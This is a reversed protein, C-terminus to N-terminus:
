SFPTPAFVQRITEIIRADLQGGDVLSDLIGMAEPFRMAPRYPRDETLAQYIDCCTLLRGEFPLDQAHLGKGYGSGDLKEHHMSAWQAIDGFGRVSALLEETLAVHERMTSFEEETLVDPKELITLPISLKGVDHLYGAIMIKYKHEEEIGLFDAVTGLKEALGRSHEKTFHSKADIILAFINCVRLMEEADMMAQVPPVVRHLAGDINADALDSLFSPSLLSHLAEVVHPAYVTGSLRTTHERIQRELDPRNDGMRLHLDMSDALRLVLARLPIDTGKLAHFGTGDWNEHHYLVVGAVDGAFPFDQINEEGRSCHSEFREFRLVGQPGAEQMYATLANDHLMACCAMDCVQADDLGLEACIRSSVYAARKGHNTTVGLLEQEVLDLARSLSYLLENLPILM